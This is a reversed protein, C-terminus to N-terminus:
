GTTCSVQLTAHAVLSWSQAINARAGSKRLAPWLPRLWTPTDAPWFHPSEPVSELHEVEELCRRSVRLRIQKKIRWRVATWSFNRRAPPGASRRGRQEPSGEALLQARSFLEGLLKGVGPSVKNGHFARRAMGACAIMRRSPSCVPPPFSAPLTCKKLLGDL